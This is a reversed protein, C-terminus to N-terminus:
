SAPVPFPFWAELQRRQPALAQPVGRGSQPPAEPARPQPQWSVVPLSVLLAPRASGSKGLRVLAPLMPLNIPAFPGALSCGHRKV